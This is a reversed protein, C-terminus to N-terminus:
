LRQHCANRIAIDSRVDRTPPVNPGRLYSISLIEIPGGHASRCRAPENPYGRRDSFNGGQKRGKLELGTHEPRKPPQPRRHSRVALPSHLHECAFVARSDTAEQFSRQRDYRRRDCKDPHKRDGGERKPRHLRRGTLQLGRSAVERDNCPSSSTRM